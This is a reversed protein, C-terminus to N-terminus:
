IGFLACWLLCGNGIYSRHRCGSWLWDTRLWGRWWAPPESAALTWSCGWGGRWGRWPWLCPSQHTQIETDWSAISTNYGEESGWPWMIWSNRQTDWQDELHHRSGTVRVAGGEGENFGPNAMQEEAGGQTATLLIVVVVSRSRSWGEFGLLLQAVPSALPLGLLGLLFGCQSSGADSEGEHSGCSPVEWEKRPFLVTQHKMLDSGKQWLSTKQM